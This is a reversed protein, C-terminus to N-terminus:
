FHYCEDAVPILTNYLSINWKDVVYASVSFNFDSRLEFGSNCTVNRLSLMHDAKRVRSQSKVMNIENIFQSKASVGGTTKFLGELINLSLEISFDTYPSLHGSAAKETTVTSTLRSGWGVARSATNNMFDVHVHGDPITVTINSNHLVPGTTGVDAGIVWHLAPELSFIGPINISSPLFTGPTFNFNSNDLPGSLNFTVALNGFFAADINFWLSEVQQSPVNFDFHGRIVAADSLYGGNSAASFVPDKEFMVTGSPITFNSAVNLGPEDFTINGPNDITSDQPHALDVGISMAISALSTKQTQAKVAMSGDDWSLSNVQYIGREDWADCNGLHNTILYFKGDRPWALTSHEFADATHFSITVMNRTCSVSSVTGITELLVVPQNAQLNISVSSLPGVPADLGDIGYDLNVNTSPVINALETKDCGPALVPHLDFDNGTSVAVTALSAFCGLYSTSRM